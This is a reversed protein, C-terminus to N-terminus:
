REIQQTISEGGGWFVEDEVLRIAHDDRWGGM